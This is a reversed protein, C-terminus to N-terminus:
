RLHGTNLTEVIKKIDTDNQIEACDDNNVFGINFSGDYPSFDIYICQKNMFYISKTDEDGGETYVLRDTLRAKSFQSIKTISKDKAAKYKEYDKALLNLTNLVENPTSHNKARLSMIDFGGKDVFIDIAHGSSMADNIFGGCDADQKNVRGHWFGGGGSIFLQMCLKGNNNYFNYNYGGDSAIPESLHENTMAGLEDMYGNKDYFKLADQLMKGLNPANNATTFNKTAEDFFHEALDRGFNDENESISKVMFHLVAFTILGLIAPIVVALIWIAAVNKGGFQTLAADDGLDLYREFRKIVHYKFYMPLVFITIPLFVIGLLYYIAAKAYLKRYILPFIYFFFAYWSWTPVSKLMMKGGNIFFKEAAQAYIEVKFVDNTKLYIGLKERLLSPDNFVSKSYETM